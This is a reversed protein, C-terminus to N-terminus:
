RKLTAPAEAADAGSRTGPGGRDKRYRERRAEKPDVRLARYVEVRDGDRLVRARDCPVGWVGTPAGALDLAPHLAQLGSALVAQAVTSGAPLSVSVEDVRGPGPSCAVTLRLTAEPAPPAAGMREVGAM